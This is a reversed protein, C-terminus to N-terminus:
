QAPRKQSLENFLKEMSEKTDTKNVDGKMVHGQYKGIPKDHRVVTLERLQKDHKGVISRAGVKLINRGVPLQITVVERGSKPTFLKTIDKGNMTVVVSKPDIVPAYEIDLPLSGHEIEVFNDDLGPFSVLHQEKTVVDDTTSESQNPQCLATTTVLFLTLVLTCKSM